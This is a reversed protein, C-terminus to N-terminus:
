LSRGETIFSSENPTFWVTTIFVQVLKAELIQFTEYLFDTVMEMVQRHFPLLCPFNLNSLDQRAPVSKRPLRLYFAALNAKLFSYSFGPTACHEEPSWNWCPLAFYWKMSHYSFLISMNMMAATTPPLHKIQFILLITKCRARWGQLRTTCLLLCESPWIIFFIFTKIPWLAVGEEGVVSSFSFPTRLTRITHLHQAGVPLYTLSLLLPSKM